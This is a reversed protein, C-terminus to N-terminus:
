ALKEWVRVRQSTEKKKKKFNRQSTELKDYKDACM